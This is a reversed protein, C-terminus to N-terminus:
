WPKAMTEKEKELVELVLSHSENVVDWALAQVDQVYRAKRFIYDYEWSHLEPLRSEWLGHIGKQGTFQGNYNHTTHLPVHADAVYHGLDASLRLIADSNKEEFARVLWNYNANIHWPLIGRKKLTSDGLLTQADGFYKPLTDHEYLEMDIYHRPAERVDIYRRQDPAVARDVVFDMNPRFFNFLKPPLTYIAYENILRHAHFGWDSYALSAWLILVFTILTRM